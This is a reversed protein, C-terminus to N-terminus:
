AIMGSVLCWDIVLLSSEMSRYFETHHTQVGRLYPRPAGPYLMGGPAESTTVGSTSCTRYLLLPEYIIPPRLICYIYDERIRERVLISWHTETSLETDKHIFRHMHQILVRTM